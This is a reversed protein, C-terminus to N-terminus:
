RSVSSEILQMFLCDYRSEKRSEFVREVYMVDDEKKLDICQKDFGDFEQDRFMPSVDDYGYTETVDIEM